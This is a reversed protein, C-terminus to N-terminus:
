VVEETFFRSQATYEGANGFSINTAISYSVPINLAKFIWTVMATTTTKGHTGAVAVLNLNKERLFDNLFGDRKSIKIGHEKAFALEPHDAPLASSYVFWDIPASKHARTIQSGDQGIYTTAGHATVADFMASQQLDSGEVNFGGDLALMALPGIGVGGIGSFYINMHKIIAYCSRVLSNVILTLHKM